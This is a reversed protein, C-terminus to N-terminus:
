AFLHYGICCKTGPQLHNDGSGNGLVWLEINIYTAHNTYTVYDNNHHGHQLNWISAVIVELTNTISQSVRNHGHSTNQRRERWRVNAKGSIKM